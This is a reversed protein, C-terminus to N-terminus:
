RIPGCFFAVSLHLCSWSSLWSNTRLHITAPLVELNDIIGQSHFTAKLDRRPQVWCASGSGKAPVLVQSRKTVVSGYNDVIPMSGRLYRVNQEDSRAESLSLSFSFFCYCTKKRNKVAESVACGYEYVSLYEVKAYTELHILPLV